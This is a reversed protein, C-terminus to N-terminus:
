MPSRGCIGKMSKISCEEWAMIAPMWMCSTHNPLTQMPWFWPFHYPEVKITQFLWQDQISEKKRRPGEKPKRSQDPSVSVEEQKKLLETLPHAIKAFGGVFRRYYSCFGLAAYLRDNEAIYFFSMKSFTM